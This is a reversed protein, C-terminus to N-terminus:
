FSFCKKYVDTLKNASTKWSFLTLREHGQAIMKERQDKMAVYVDIFNSKDRDMNFYLAAKGGIERFCSTDNLLVPCSCAFAELIPMGFGEYQSPYVFALAHHYLNFLQETTVFSHIIRGKLDLNDIIKLEKSNFQESTCVLNIKSDLKALKAFSYLFTEFNKYAWRQGVYLLYPFSYPSHASFNLSVDPKGHYIVSIKKEDVGLIEVIDKKTNESVAIIHAALPALKKKMEVQFDDIEFYEPFLEPIMDHITLVFPKQNLYNLFYDDFYTPHFIDFDNRKLVRVAYDKNRENEKSKYSFLSVANYILKKGKFKHGGLFANLRDRFSRVDSRFIYDKLYINPNENVAIEYKVDLPLHTILEAFSKSVGGHSQMAFAQYDYLVKM